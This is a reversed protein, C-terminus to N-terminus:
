GLFLSLAGVTCGAAVVLLVIGGATTGGGQGLAVTLLSCFAVLFLALMGFPLFCCCCGEREFVSISDFLLFCVCVCKKQRM